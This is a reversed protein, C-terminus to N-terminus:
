GREADLGLRRALFQWALASMHASQANTAAGGHGGEVNEYYTVDAGISELLAATKRAHGPHVRDDRTSTLLLVPPYSRGAAIRHYPSYERLREWQAPDDPDGYEAMWSAGALLHSYRRMDLLPVQIVLAGFLDPYRTLMNGVLLGGNSGGQAGLHAPTTIGRQVLDRAVAAFDEYAKHRLPGLAAQHWAPGYEGGGRINAVAYVGGRELWARGLGGSYSPTLSVEFGGYGYLLTPTASPAQRWTRRLVDERGVVFYPVRTGDDSTAFHQEAVLGAADFFAPAARLPDLEADPDGVSALSLTTPTLYGTALVWVDDSDVPDVARVGVTAVPDTAPFASRTWGGAGAGPGLPPPTLVRLRSKVDDLVNLVLHHRTWTAGALSTTPTPEFLVTLDRSGALFADAPAALLSGARYTAGGVAWDDRLDVLLWERHFGVSASEPVDLRTLTQEATGLGSVLFTESRYFAISRQVIDREFGPTRSRRGSIYLDDERGEYVLAAQEVPTGRRWLRVTRPYGSSTTTGPGLDTFVYVTDEDAWALGGKAGGTASDDPRTAREFGEPAPVFRKDVLDFERTVDADSGAVSLDVLARRWPQGAAVQEPTPRLVSAGHWVWGVGEERALADLDLVTEWEPDPTRYSEPTTRRWLGREHAGDRWLNYLLGGILSVDPIREDSDLVELVAARTSEFAPGSSLTRRTRANRERVWALAAPGEVDELWAFPDAAGPDLPTGPAPDHDAAIGM